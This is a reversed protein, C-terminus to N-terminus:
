GGQMPAFIEVRDGDCLGTCGRDERPVFDGNLATAVILPDFELEDCLSKLNTARTKLQSGNMEILM